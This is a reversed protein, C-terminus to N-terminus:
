RNICLIFHQMPQVQKLFIKMMKQSIGVCRVHHKVERRKNKPRSGKKRKKEQAEAARCRADQAAKEYHEAQKKYKSAMNESIKIKGLIKSKGFNYFYGFNGSEEPNKVAIFILFFLIM